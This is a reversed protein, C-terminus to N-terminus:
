QQQEWLSSDWGRKNSQFEGDYDGEGPTVPGEGTIQSAAIMGEMSFNVTRVAPAIYNKKGQM